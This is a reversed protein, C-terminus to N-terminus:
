TTAESTPAVQAKAKGKRGRKGKKALKKAAKIFEDASATSAVKVVTKKKAKDPRLKGRPSPDKPLVQVDAKRLRRRRVPAEKPVTLHKPRAPKPNGPEQVLEDVTSDSLVELLGNQFAVVLERIKDYMSM